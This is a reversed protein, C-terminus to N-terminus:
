SSRASRAQEIMATLKTGAAYAQQVFEREDTISSQHINSEMSVCKQYASTAMIRALREWDVSAALCGGVAVYSLHWATYPVHLLTVYDRWGGRELAYFAPRAEPSVDSGGM